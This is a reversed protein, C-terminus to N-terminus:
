QSQLELWTQVTQSRRLTREECVRGKPKFGPSSVPASPISTQKTSTHQSCWSKSPWKTPWYTSLRSGLGPVGFWQCGTYIPSEHWGILVGSREERRPPLITVVLGLRWSTWRESPLIKGTENIRRQGDRWESKPPILCSQTKNRLVAEVCQTAM